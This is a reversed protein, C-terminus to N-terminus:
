KVYGQAKLYNGVEGMSRASNRKFATIERDIKDVIEIFFNSGEFCIKAANGTNKNKWTAAPNPHKEFCSYAALAEAGHVKVAHSISKDTAFGECSVRIDDLSAVTDRTVGPENIIMDVSEYQSADLPIVQELSDAAQSKVDMGARTPLAVFGFLIAMLVFAGVILAAGSVQGCESEDVEHPELDYRMTGLAFQKAEEMLEPEDFCGVGAITGMWDPREPGFSRALEVTQETFPETMLEHYFEGVFEGWKEIVKLEEDM